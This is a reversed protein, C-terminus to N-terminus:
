DTRPRYFIPARPYSLRSWAMANTMAHLVADIDNDPVGQIWGPTAKSTTREHPLNYDLRVDWFGDVYICNSRRLCAQRYSAKERGAKTSHAGRHEDYEPSLWTQIYFDDADHSANQESTLAGGLDMRDLEPRQNPNNRGRCGRTMACYISCVAHFPSACYVTYNEADPRIDYLSPCYKATTLMLNRTPCNDKFGRNSTAQEYSSSFIDTVRLGALDGRLGTCRLVVDRKEFHGELQVGANDAYVEAGAKSVPWPFKGPERPGNNKEEVVEWWRLEGDMRRRNLAITGVAERQIRRDLEIPHEGGAWGARRLITAAPVGFALGDRNFKHEFYILEGADAEHEQLFLLVSGFAKRPLRNLYSVHGLFKTANDHVCKLAHGESVDLFGRITIVVSRPLRALQIPARRKAAQINNHDRRYLYETRLVKKFEISAPGCLFSKMHAMLDQPLRTLRTGKLRSTRLDEPERAYMYEIHLAEKRGMYSRIIEIITFTARTPNITSTIRKGLALFPDIGHSEEVKVKNTGKRPELPDIKRVLKEVCKAMTARSARQERLQMTHCYDLGAKDQAELARRQIGDPDLQACVNAPRAKHMELTEFGIYKDQCLDCKVPFMQQYSPSSTAEADMQAREDQAGRTGSFCSNYSTYPSRRPLKDLGSVLAYFRLDQFWELSGEPHRACSLVFMLKELLFGRLTPPVLHRLMYRAPDNMACQLCLGPLGSLARELCMCLRPIHQERSFINNKISVSRLGGGVEIRLAMGFLPMMWPELQYTWFFEFERPPRSPHQNMKNQRSLDDQQTFSPDNKGINSPGALEYGWSMPAQGPVM